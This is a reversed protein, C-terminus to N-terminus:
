AGAYRHAGTSRNGSFSALYFATIVVLFLVTIIWAVRPSIYGRHRSWELLRVLLLAIIFFRLARFVSQTKFAM